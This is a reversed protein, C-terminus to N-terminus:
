WLKQRVHCYPETGKNKYYDQHYAEAPWFEGAPVVQTVVNMGRGKLDAILKDAVTKQEDTTFFIASRYQDGLDPGQGNAQTPDHIEFFLKALTEFSVRVPDYLVEVTEAHGTHGACVQEYTPHETTGGTYGVTTKLVGPQQQLLYEVGWFCGGAFYARETKAQDAPVFSMSISNVCYRTNKDTLREGVFVHGLHAGCNACTIETRQGDADPTQRVAGPIADDFAPWGCDSRFKDQSRYLLAGCRKCTYVGAAFTDTYEGVFPRETGKNVLVATEEPTLQRWTGPAPQDSM